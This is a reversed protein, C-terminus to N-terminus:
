LTISALYHNNQARALIETKFGYEIAIESLLKFDIYLWNFPESKVNEYKMLFNVIGYYPKSLDVSYSGCNETFLYSIDTSDFILKGGPNLLDPLKDFFRKLGEINGTIGIGNMLMLLIDFKETNLSYIDTLKVKNIGRRKMAKVAGPSIDIASVDLGSDQLYLAHVGAGAGIDLIKEGKKCTNLAIRELPPMENYTRFLYPVKIVDDEGEASYVHIKGDRRGNLYDLLARGIPDAGPKITQGSIIDRIFHSETVEKM